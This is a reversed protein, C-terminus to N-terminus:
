NVATPGTKKDRVILYLLVAFFPALSLAFFIPGGSTHIWSRIMHPGIEVCLWAIVLIRIGNRVIGLPIVIFALLVRLRSHRLFMQGAILSTIFLVFSSRIGSCEQAVRITIGPIKFMLGDRLVPLNTLAFLANAAEASSYQFFMEISDEVVKPFPILFLLMCCPFALVRLTASGFFAFGAAGLFALYGVMSGALMDVPPPHWGRYTQWAYTGLTVLGCVSCVLAPLWSTTFRLPLSGARLGVFYLSVLPILFMHSYLENNWALKTLGLLTPSFVASLILFVVGFGLLRRGKLRTWALRLGDVIGPPAERVEPARVQPEILDASM